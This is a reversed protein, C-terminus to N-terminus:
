TCAPHIWNWLGQTKRLFCFFVSYVYCVSQQPTIPNKFQSWSHISNMKVWIFFQLDATDELFHAQWLSYFMQDIKRKPCTSLFLLASELSKLPLIFFDILIGTTLPLCINPIPARVCVSEGCHRSVEDRSLPPATWLSTTFWFSFLSKAFVFVFVAKVFAVVRSRKMLFVLVKGGLDQSCLSASRPSQRDRLFTHMRCYSTSKNRTLRLGPRQHLWWLVICKRVPQMTLM